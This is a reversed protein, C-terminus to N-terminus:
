RWGREGRDERVGLWSGWAMGMRESWGYVAADVAGQLVVCLKDLLGVDFPVAKGTSVQYIRCASPLVWIMMYGLPYTLM